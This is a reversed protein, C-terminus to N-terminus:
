AANFINGGGPPLFLSVSVCGQCILAKYVTIHVVHQGIQRKEHPTYM